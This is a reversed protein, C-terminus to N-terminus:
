DRVGGAAPLLRARLEGPTMDSFERVDHTLHAQDVYGTQAAMAALSEQPAATLEKVFREFRCLRRFQDPAFGTAVRFRQIFHKRSWGIERALKTTIAKASHKLQHMAWVVTPNHQTGHSFRDVLFDDLLTFREEASKAECLTGGLDHAVDGVLDRLPVVRNAIEALPVGIVTALSALPLFIHIGAQPGMARSLSTANAIGGVFAEGAKVIVAHSDAGIIELPADLAYLLVGSTAALERRATFSRTREWYSSYGAVRNRLAPAPRGDVIEWRDVGDDYSRVSLTGRTEMSQRSTDM